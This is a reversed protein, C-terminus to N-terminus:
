PCLVWKKGIGAPGWCSPRQGLPSCVHQLAWLWCGPRSALWAACLVERGRSVERWRGPVQQLGWGRSGVPDGAGPGPRDQGAPTAGSEVGVLGLGLGQAPRAKRTHQHCSTGSRDALGSHDALVLKCVKTKGRVKPTPLPSVTPGVVGPPGREGSTGRAGAVGRFGQSSASGPSPQLGPLDPGQERWGQSGSMGTEVARSWSWVGQKDGAEQLSCMMVRGLDWQGWATGPCVGGVGGTPASEASRLGQSHELQGWRSWLGPGQLIKTPAPSGAESGATSCSGPASSLVSRRAQLSPTQACPTRPSGPPITSSQVCLPSFPAQAM